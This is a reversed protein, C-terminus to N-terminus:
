FPFRTNQLYKKEFHQLKINFEYLVVNLLSQDHRHEIFDQSNPISSPIDTIDNENCCITLWRKILNIITPTKRLVMCGAWCIEYNNIFTVNYMNYKKIVDMKCWQKFYYSSENPKNKWIL